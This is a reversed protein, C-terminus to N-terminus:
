ILKMFFDCSDFNNIFKYIFSLFYSKMTMFTLLSLFLLHPFHTPLTTEMGLCNFNYLFSIIYRKMKVSPYHM